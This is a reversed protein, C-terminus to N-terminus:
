HRSATTLGGHMREPLGRQAAGLWQNLQGNDGQPHVVTEKLAM